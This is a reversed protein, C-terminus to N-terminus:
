TQDPDPETYQKFKIRKLKVRFYSSKNRWFISKGFFLNRGYLYTGGLINPGLFYTAVLRGVESDLEFSHFKLQLRFWVQGLGPRVQAQCCTGEGVMDQKFVGELDVKM